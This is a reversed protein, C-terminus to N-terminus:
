NTSRSRGLMSITALLQSQPTAEGLGANEPDIEQERAITGSVIYVLRDSWVIDSALMAKRDSPDGVPHVTVITDGDLWEPKVGEHRIQVPKVNQAADVPIM